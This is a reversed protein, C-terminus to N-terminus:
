LHKRLFAWALDGRFEHGGQFADFQFSDPAAEYFKRAKEIAARVDDIPFGKDHIGAQIALARPAILAALDASSLDVLRGEPKGPQAPDNRFSCSAVAVRIRPDLAPTYLTYFGGYSLGVMAVRRPDVEPRKLLADLAKSTKEVELAALSTGRARLDADLRARVDPPIPSGHERDRYPYFIHHPAFVVYGQAVAGRVMDHYNAGGQFTALEPFGGGGHMSVVLPVRGARLKPVIYLGYTELEPAIPVYCRYYIAVEDEGAKELREKVKKFLGPPPYGIRGRLSEEVGAGGARSQGAPKLRAIYELVQKYQRERIPMSALPDEEYLQQAICLGVACLVLAGLRM